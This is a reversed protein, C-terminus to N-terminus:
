ETVINIPEIHWDEGEVPFHYNYKKEATSHIYDVCHSSHPSYSLDAAIGYEHRSTGPQAALNGNNCSKTIYCNYFYQQTERTRHGSIIEINCGENAGDKKLLLLNSYFTPELGWSNNDYWGKVQCEETQPYTTIHYAGNTFNMACTTSGERTSHSIIYNIVISHIKTYTDANYHLGDTTVFDNKIDSYSNIYKEGFTSEFKSNFEEIQTNTVSYNYEQEKEEDVPNISLFFFSINPYKSIISNYKNIYRDTAFDNVGFNFVVFKKNEGNIVDDLEEEATNVLWNYGEGDKAIYSINSNNLASKMGNTRSDGVYVLLQEIEEKTYVSATTTNNQSGPEGDTLEQVGEASSSASLFIIALPIIILLGPAFAMIIKRRIRRKIIRKVLSNNKSNNKNKSSGSAITNNEKTPTKESNIPGSKEGVKSSVNNGGKSAKNKMAAAKGVADSAGSESAKNSMNQIKKGGPAIKNARTMQKGLFETSKGGTFKDAAKIAGGIAMAYPNKTAMAVEAANKINNANNANAREKESLKPEEAENNKSTAKYPEAM